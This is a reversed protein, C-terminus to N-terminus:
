MVMVRIWFMVSARWNFLCSYGLVLGLKFPARLGSSLGQNCIDGWLAALVLFFGVWEPSFFIGWLFISGFDLLLICSFKKEAEPRLFHSHLSAPNEIQFFVHNFIVAASAAQFLTALTSQGFVETIHLLPMGHMFLPARHQHTCANLVWAGSGSSTNRPCSSGRHCWSSFPPRHHLLHVVRVVCCLCMNFSGQM